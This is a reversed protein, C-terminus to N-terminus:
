RRWRSSREELPQLVGWEVAQVVATFAITYALITTV